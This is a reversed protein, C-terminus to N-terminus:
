SIKNCTIQHTKISNFFLYMDYVYFMERRKKLLITKSIMTQFFVPNMQYVNKLFQEM